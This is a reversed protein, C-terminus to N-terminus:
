GAMLSEIEEAEIPISAMLDITAERGVLFNNEIRVGIKEDPIYIGPEVTFVMGERIPKWTQGVDHVDLGLHHSTGHMFYKKYLPKEPDQKAVEHKDLLGLDILESTMLKGIEEQYERVIIGPRLLQAAARHVRLVADYVARQRPTYRGNVPITRTLDANYNAYNAAV